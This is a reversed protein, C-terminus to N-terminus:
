QYCTFQCGWARQERVPAFVGHDAIMQRYPQSALAFVLTIPRPTARASAAINDLVSRLICAEFPNFFFFVQEDPQIAYAAADAEIVTCEAQVGSRSQFTQWNERALECLERAFEIGRVTPFGAAAAAMLVKGKGCGVDVFTGQTRAAEAALPTLVRKLALTRSGEYYGARQLDGAEITLGDFQRPRNTDVGYRWDFHWDAVVGVAKAAVASIGGSRVVNRLRTLASM